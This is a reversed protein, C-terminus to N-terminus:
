RKKKKSLMIGQFDMWTTTCILIENRKIASCYKMIHIIDWLQKLMYEILFLQTTKQKSINHIFSQSYEHVAKTHFRIKMERVCSHFQHTTHYASHKTKYSVTVSKELTATGYMGM